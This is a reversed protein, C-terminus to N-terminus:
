KIKTASRKMLEVFDRGTIKKFQKIFCSISIEGKSFANSLSKLKDKKIENQNKRIWTGIILGFATGELFNSGLSILTATPIIAIGLEALEKLNFPKFRGMENVVINSIAQKEKWSIGFCLRNYRKTKSLFIKNENTFQCYNTDIKM